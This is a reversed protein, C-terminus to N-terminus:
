AQRRANLTAETLKRYEAQLANAQSGKNYPSNEDGMMGELETLRSQAVNAQNTGGPLITAFPNLERSVTALFRLTAPDDGIVRGNALRGGFFEAAFGEPTHKALLNSIANFNAKYDSGWEQRMENESKEAAINDQEHTAEAIRAHEAILFEVGARAKDPTYNKDHAMKLFNETIDKFAPDIVGVDYESYKEPIGNDKRWASVEEPTAGDKLAFKVEGSRVKNQAEILADTAAKISPYRELRKLLKEDTGAIKERWGDDWSPVNAEAGAEGGNADSASNADATAAAKRADGSTDVEAGNGADANAAAGGADGGDGENADMFVHKRKFM